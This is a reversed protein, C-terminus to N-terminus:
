RGKSKRYAARNALATIDIGESEPSADAPKPEPKPEKSKPDVPQDNAM